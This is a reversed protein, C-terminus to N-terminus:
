KSDSQPENNTAFKQQAKERDFKLMWTPPNDYSLMIKFLEQNKEIAPYLYLSTSSFGLNELVVYETNNDILAKILEKDNSTFPYSTVRSKAFMYFLEPKRSCVVTGKPYKDHVTEAVKIFNHYGPYYPAKNENHLLKIGSVSTLILLSLIWPSCTKGTGFKKMVLNLTTYLGIIVGVQLVPLLATLYRNGSPSSFISIIGLTGLFYFVFLWKYQKFRWFGIFILLVLIIGVVCELLSAPKLYDVNLFPTISNPLAQTVLMKITSFFRAIIESIGLQGDEPRWPNAMSITDMYREQPLGALKNRVMWPVLCLAFGVIFALTEKWRRAFAFYMVIAFILAIGQTRIHYSYSAFLILLYFYRDKYFLKEKDMKMISWIALISFLLFSMESMMMTAFDLVRYNIMGASVAVFALSYPLNNKKLLFFLILISTLFFLGNLIKQPVIGDTFIRVACMLLPYGPPFINIPNYEGDTIDAYGHGQVISTSLMYYRCNDGNSDLKSDFTYNFVFIFIICLAITYLLSASSTFLREKM